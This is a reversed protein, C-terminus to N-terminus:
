AESAAPSGAAAHAAASSNSAAPCRTRQRTRSAARRCPRAHSGCTSTAVPSTKCSAVSVPAIIMKVLKIFADGLPKMAEGTGPAFHGLLAGLAIAVLVQVYLHRYWPLVVPPEAVVTPQM